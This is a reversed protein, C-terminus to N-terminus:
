VNLKVDGALIRHLAGDGALVLLRGEADAGAETGNVEPGGAQTIRIAAGRLADLANWAAVVERAGGSELVRTWHRTREIWKSLIEEREHCHGSEAVLSTAPFLPREPLDRPLTNVNVGLGAIAIPAGDAPISAECLIGAVKRMNVLIDNPWKIRADLATTDRIAEAASLGCLLTLLPIDGARVAPHLVLSAYLGTGGPSVWARGNRGRGSSQSDAVVATFAPAGGQALRMAEDNTSALEKFRYIPTDM